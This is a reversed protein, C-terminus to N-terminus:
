KRTNILKGKEDYCNNKIWHGILKKDADFVFQEKISLELTVSQWVGSSDYKVAKRPYDDSTRIELFLLRGDKEYYYVRINDKIYSYSYSNDMYSMLFRNKCKSKKNKIAKQNEEYYPDRLMGKYPTMDIREPMGTFAEERAEKVTYTVRGKIIYSEATSNMLFMTIMVTIIIKLKSM